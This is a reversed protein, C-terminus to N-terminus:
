KDSLGAALSEMVKDLSFSGAKQSPPFDKFTALFQGVIQQAPVLMFARDIRWRKYGMGIEHAQEFPDSRLNNLMPFRLEVFPEQWVELGEARQERFTLKWNDYRLALM